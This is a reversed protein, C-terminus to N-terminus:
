AMYNRRCPWRCARDAVLYEPLWSLVSLNQLAWLGFCGSLLMLARRDTKSLDSAGGKTSPLAIRSGGNHRALILTWAAMIIAFALGAWWVSSWVQDGPSLFEALRAISTAILGGLPVWTAALAAAFPIHKPAANRTMLTPGAIALIAM